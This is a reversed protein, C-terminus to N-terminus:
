AADTVLARSYWVYCTKQKMVPTRACLSPHTRLLQPAHVFVPTRAWTVATYGVPRHRHRYCDVWKDPAPSASPRGLEVFSFLFTVVFRSACFYWYARFTYVWSFDFRQTCVMVPCLHLRVKWQTLELECTRCTKKLRDKKNSGYKNPAINQLHGANKNYPTICCCIYDSQIHVRAQDM